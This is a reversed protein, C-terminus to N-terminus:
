KTIKEPEVAWQKAKLLLNSEPEELSAVHYYVASATVAGCRKCYHKQGFVQNQNYSISKVDVSMQCHRCWHCPIGGRMLGLDHTSQYDLPSGTGRRFRYGESNIIM